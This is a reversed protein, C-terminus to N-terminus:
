FPIESELDDVNFDPAQQVQGQADQQAQSQPQEPKKYNPDPQWTDLSAYKKGSQSENIDINLYFKGDKESKKAHQRAFAIFSEMEISQKIIEGYQTTIGKVFMGDIFVKDSM